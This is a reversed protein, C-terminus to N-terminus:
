YKVKIDGPRHSIDMIIFDLRYEPGNSDRNNHQMCTDYLIM